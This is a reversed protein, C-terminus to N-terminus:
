NRESNPEVKPILGYALAPTASVYYGDAIIRDLIDLTGSYWHFVVRQLGAESVMRHCREHSFRCHVIVPKRKKEALDLLESFVRQQLPKKVKEKYDLGVEGLAICDNLHKEIFALTQSIDDERVEWPHYGIAPVVMDPFRKAADLTERNSELDMGVGIVQRVGAVRARLLAGELDDMRDLHAHGDILIPESFRTM